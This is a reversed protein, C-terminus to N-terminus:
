CPEELLRYLAQAEIPKVLHHDFGAAATRQRDEPQGWGTVAVLEVHQLQSRARFARALECGDMQPMGLDLFAIAPPEREAQVLASPGDYATSVIQGQLRLLMALSDAADKNDDVVLVRRSALKPQQQPAQRSHQGNGSQDVVILPLRIIFESGANRGASHAEVAGGHLEVLRQVLSLGIGLGGQSEKTRRDAQYFMDFLRPLADRPIGIGTDRVRIVAEDGARVAGIFIEGGRETYKAANNLLNSIVQALRVLDGHVWLPDPAVSVTLRHAEADILPQSTEVARAVVTALEIPERRLEVKGRM